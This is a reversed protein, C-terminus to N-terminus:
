VIVIFLMLGGVNSFGPLVSLSGGQFITNVETHDFSCHAPCAGNGVIPDIPSSLVMATCLMVATTFMLAVRINRVAKRTAEMCYVRLVIVSLLHTVTSFWALDCVINLHYNSIQCRRIFATILLALSTGLQQDSLNRIFDDLIENWMRRTERRQREEHSESKKTSRAKDNEGAEDSQVAEEMSQGAQENQPMARGKKGHPM